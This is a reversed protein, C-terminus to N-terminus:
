TPTSPLTSSTVLTKVVHVLEQPKLSSEAVDVEAEEKKCVTAELHYEVVVVVVLEEM